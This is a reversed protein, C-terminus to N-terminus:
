RKLVTMLPASFNGGMNRQIGADPVGLMWAVTKYVSSPSPKTNQEPAGSTFNFGVTGRSETRPDSDYFVNGYHGGRVPGGMLVTGWMEGDDWNISGDSNSFLVGRHGESTLQILTHDLLTAGGRFPHPTRSLEDLFAGLRHSLYSVHDKAAQSTFEPRLHLHDVDLHISTAGLLNNKFGIFSLLLSEGFDMPAGLGGGLTQGTKFKVRLNNYDATIVNIQDSLALQIGQQTALRANGVDLLRAKLEGAEQLANIRTLSDMVTQLETRGMRPVRPRFFGSLVSINDLAVSTPYPGYSERCAGRSMIACPIPPANGGTRRRAVEAAFLPAHSAGADPPPTDGEFDHFSGGMRSAWIATHFNEFDRGCNVIAIRNAFNELGIGGIAANSRSGPTLFLQNPGGTAHQSLQDLPWISGAEPNPNRAFYAPPPLMSAFHFAARVPIDVFFDVVPATQAEAVSVFMRGLNQLVHANLQPSIGSGALIISAKRLFERRTIDTNTKIKKKM